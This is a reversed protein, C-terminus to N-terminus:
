VAYFVVQVARKFVRLASINYTVTIKIVGISGSKNEFKEVSSSFDELDIFPMWKEVSKRIREIAANDFDDQSSYETTLPKLNAGFDYLGLREGWNTLLLNKLNDQFQDALDYNMELITGEGLRLPTKIGFPVPSSELEEKEKQDKTKGSSKFSYSAM